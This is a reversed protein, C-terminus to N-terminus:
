VFITLVKETLQTRPEISNSTTFHNPQFAYANQGFTEAASKSIEAFIQVVSHSSKLHLCLLHRNDYKFYPCVCVYTITPFLHSYYTEFCSANKRCYFCDKRKNLFVKKFPGSVSEKNEDKRRVTLLLYIWYFYGIVAYSGPEDRIPSSRAILQAVVM